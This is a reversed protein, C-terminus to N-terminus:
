QCEVPRTGPLSKFDLKPHYTFLKERTRSVGTYLFQAIHLYDKSAPADYLNQMHVFPNKVASGQIKYNNVIYGFSWYAFQSSLLYLDRRSVATGLFDLKFAGPNENFQQFVEAVKSKISSDVIFLSVEIPNGDGYDPHYINTTVEYGPVKVSIERGSKKNKYSYKNESRTLKKIFAKTDKLIPIYKINNGEMYLAPINPTTLIITEGEILSDKAKEGFLATRIGNNMKVTWPNNEANFNIMQTYEPDQKEEINIKYYKIFTNVFEAEDTSHEYEDSYLVTNKFVNIIRLLTENKIKLDGSNVADIIEERIGMSLDAVGKNDTRRIKLLEFYNGKDKLNQLISSVAGYPTDVMPTQAIDGTLLIKPHVGNIEYYLDAFKQLLTGLDPEQYVNELSSSSNGYEDESWITIPSEELEYHGGLMSAEDILFVPKSKEAFFTPAKAREKEEPSTLYQKIQKITLSYFENDRRPIPKMGFLSQVTQPDGEPFNRSLVGRAQHTPAAILPNRGELLIESIYTKGSGGPGSLFFAHNYFNEEENATMPIDSDLWSQIVEYATVQEDQLTKSPNDTVPLDEKGKNIQDDITLQKPQNVRKYFEIIARNLKRYDEDSQEETQKLDTKVPIGNQLYVTYTTGRYPVQKEEYVPNELPEVKITDPNQKLLKPNNVVDLFTISSEDFYPSDMLRDRLAKYKPENFNEVFDDIRGTLAEVDIGLSEFLKGLLSDRLPVEPGTEEEPIGLNDDQDNTNYDAEALKIADELTLADLSFPLNVHDVEFAGDVETFTYGLNELRIKRKNLPTDNALITQPKGVSWKSYGDFKTETYGKKSLYESILQDGFNGKDYQNGVLFSAGAAIAEEILPKYKETLVKTIDEATVGRFTGSASVMVVDNSTYNGTNAKNGWAARYKDTSSVKANGAQYGIFQTAQEAMEIDKAANGKMDTPKVGAKLLPNEKLSQPGTPTNTRTKKTSPNEWDYKNILYDLATAHTAYGKEAYYIIPRNKLKGNKIDDIIAQRYEPTAEAVGMNDGTIMWHIFRKTSKIGQEDRTGTENQWDFPNGITLAPEASLRGKYNQLFTNTKKGRYAIILQDGFQARAEPVVESWFTKGSYAVDKLNGIGPIEVNESQTKNGLESYIEEATQAPKLSFVGEKVGTVDDPNEEVKPVSTIDYVYLKGKGLFWNKSYDFVFDDVSAIDESKLIADQGGAENIDLLGRNTIIFPTGGITIYASEGTSLGIQKGQRETRLITTKTGAVIKSAKDAQIEIDVTELEKTTSNVYARVNKYLLDLDSENYTKGGFIYTCAM